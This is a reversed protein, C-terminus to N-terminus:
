ALGAMFDKEHEMIVFRATFNCGMTTDARRCNARNANATANFKWSQMTSAWALKGVMIVM